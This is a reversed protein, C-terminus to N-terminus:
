KIFFINKNYIEKFKNIIDIPYEGLDSSLINEIVQEKNLM